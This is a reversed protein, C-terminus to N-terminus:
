DFEVKRFVIFNLIFLIAVWIFSYIFANFVYDSPLRNEYLIFEKLNLKYFAPLVNNYFKLSKELVARQEVLKSNLIDPIITGAFYLSFAM